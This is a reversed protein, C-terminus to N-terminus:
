RAVARGNYVQVYGGERLGGVDNQTVVTNRGDDMRVYVNYTTQAQNRNQIANGAVAGAVAGAATAVNQNGESGGTQKSIQRGAVAGVVGGLVAGTANPMATTGNSAVEIRTVVGCDYCSTNASQTGYGPNGYGANSNGPSTTACGAVALTALLATAGTLRINM